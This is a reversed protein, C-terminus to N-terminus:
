LSYRVEADDSAVALRGTSGGKAVFWASVPDESITLDVDNWTGPRLAQMSYEIQVSSSGEVSGCRPSPMAITPPQHTPNAICNQLNNTLRDCAESTSYERLKEYSM